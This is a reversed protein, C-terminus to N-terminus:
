PFRSPSLACLDKSTLRRRKLVTAELKCTRWEHLRRRSLLSVVIVTPFCRLPIQPIPDAAQLLRDMSPVLTGYSLSGLRFSPFASPSESALRGVPCHPVNRSFASRVAIASFRRTCMKEVRIAATNSHTNALSPRASHTRSLKTIM